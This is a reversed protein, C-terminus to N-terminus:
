EKTCYETKTKEKKEGCHKCDYVTSNLLLIPIWDHRTRSYSSSNDEYRGWLDLNYGYGVNSNDSIINTPNQVHSLLENIEEETLYIPNM